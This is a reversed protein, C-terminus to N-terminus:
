DFRIIKQLIEESTSFVAVRKKMLLASWIIWSSEEFIQVIDELNSFADIVSLVFRGFFFLFFFFHFYPIHLAIVGLLPSAVLHDKKTDYESSVFKGVADLYKGTTLVHL